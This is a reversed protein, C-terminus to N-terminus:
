LYKMMERKCKILSDVTSHYLEMLYIGDYEVEKLADFFGKWDLTGEGLPLHEDKQGHNDHIHLHKLRRGCAITEKAVDHGTFYSHGVDFVIAINERNVDDIYQHLQEATQILNADSLNETYITIEYKAAIDCLERMTEVSLKWLKDFVEEHTQRSGDKHFISIHMMKKSGCHVVIVSGDLMRTYKCCNEFEELIARQLVKSEEALNFNSIHVTIEPHYLEILHMLEENFRTSDAHRMHESYTVEMAHYEGVALLKEGMERLEEYSNRFSVSYGFRKM